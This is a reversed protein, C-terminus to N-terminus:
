KTEYGNFKLQAFLKNLEEDSTDSNFKIRIKGEPSYVIENLFTYQSKLRNVLRYYANTKNYIKFTLSILNNETTKLCLAPVLYHYPLLQENITHVDKGLIIAENREKLLQEKTKIEKIQNNYNTKSINKRNGNEVYTHQKDPKIKKFSVKDHIPESSTSKKLEKSQSFSNLAFFTLLALITTKM